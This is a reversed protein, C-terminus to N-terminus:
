NKVICFSVRINTKNAIKINNADNEVKNEHFSFNLLFSVLCLKIIIKISPNIKPIIVPKTPAPPPNKITGTNNYKVFKLIFSATRAENNIIDILDIKPNVASSFLEILQGKNNNNVMNETKPM